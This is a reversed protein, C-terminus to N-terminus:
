VTWTATKTILLCIFFRREGRPVHIPTAYLLIFGFELAWVKDVASEGELSKLLNLCYLSTVNHRWEWSTINDVTRPLIKLANQYFPMKPSMTQFYM